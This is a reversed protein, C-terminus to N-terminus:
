VFKGIMPASVPPAPPPVVPGVIVGLGSSASFMSFIGQGLASCIRPVELGVIGVSNFGGVLLSSLLIPDGKFILSSFAGAGVVESPCSIVYPKSVGLIIPTWMKSAMTGVLGNGKFAADMSLGDPVVTQIGTMQNPSPVPPGVFSPPQPTPSPLGKGNGFVYTSPSLLWQYLGIEVGLAIKEMQPTKSSSSTIISSSVFGPAPM